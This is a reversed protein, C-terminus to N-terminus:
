KVPDAEALAKPTGVRANEGLRAIEVAQVFKSKNVPAVAIGQEGLKMTVVEMITKQDSLFASRIDELRSVEEKNNGVENIRKDLVDSVNREFEVEMELLVGIAEPKRTFKIGEKMAKLYKLYNPAEFVRSRDLTIIYSQEPNPGSGYQSPINLHQRYRETLVVVRPLFQLQGNDPLEDRLAQMVARGPHTPVGKFTGMQFLSIFEDEDWPSDPPLNEPSFPASADRFEFRAEKVGSLGEGSEDREVKAQFELRYPWLATNERHEVHEKYHDWDIYRNRFRYSIEHKFNLEDETDFYIDRFLFEEATKDVYYMSGVKKPASWVQSEQTGPILSAELGKRIDNAVDLLDRGHVGSGKLSFKYEREVRPSTGVAEGDLLALSHVATSKEHHTNRERVVANESKVTFPYPTRFESDDITIRGSKASIYNGNVQVHSLAVDGGHVALNGEYRVFDFHDFTGGEFKAYQVKGGQVDRMAVTGWSEGSQLPAFQIPRESTGAIDVSSGDFFLSADRALWVRTGPLIRVTDYRNFHKTTRITVDGKWITERKTHFVEPNWWVSRPRYGEGIVLESDAADVSYPEGTISNRGTLSVKLDDARPLEPLRLTYRYLGPVKEMQGRKGSKRKSLLNDGLRFVLNGDEFEATVRSNEAAGAEDIGQRLLEGRSGGGAIQIEDLVFGAPSNVEVALTREINGATRPSIGFRVSTEKLYSQIRDNRLKVNELLTLVASEWESNSIHHVGKDNAHLKFPFAYIDPRMRAAEQQIME